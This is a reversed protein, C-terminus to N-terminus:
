ESAAAERRIARRRVWVRLLGFVALVALAVAFRVLAAKSEATTVGVLSAAFFTFVFVMPVVGIVTAGIFPGFRYGGLAAGFNVVPWPLPVFRIGVLAWFGYLHLREEMRAFREEGLLHAVFDRGLLRAFGFTLSAGVIAGLSNYLTGWWTGFIAGGTLLLPSAPLGLPSFLAWAGILALPSWWLSRLREVHTAVAERTLLAGAESYRFLWYGFAVIAVMLLFRLTASRRSPLPDSAGGNM